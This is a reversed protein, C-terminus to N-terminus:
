KAVTQLTGTSLQYHYWTVENMVIVTDVPIHGAVCNVNNM